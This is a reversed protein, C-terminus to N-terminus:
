TGCTLSQNAPCTNKTIYDGFMVAITTCTQLNMGLGSTKAFPGSLRLTKLFQSLKETQCQLIGERM